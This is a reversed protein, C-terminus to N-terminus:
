TPRGGKEITVNTLHICQSLAWDGIDTVTAPLTIDRLGRLGLFAKKDIATVPLDGSGDEPKVTAPVTLRSGAGEYGTVAVGDGAANVECSLIFSDATVKIM